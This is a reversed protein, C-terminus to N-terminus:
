KEDNIPLALGAPILGNIDFHSEILWLVIWHPNYGIDSTQVITEAVTGFHSTKTRSTFEEFICEENYKNYRIGTLLVPYGECDPTAIKLKHPLYCAIDSFTLKRM